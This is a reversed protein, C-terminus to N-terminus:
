DDIETPEKKEKKSSFKDFVGCVYLVFEMGIDSIAFGDESTTLLGDQEFPKLAKIEDKFYDNFDIKLKEGLETYNIKGYNRILQIVERRILEDNNLVYGRYVPLKGLEIDETYGEKYYKDQSYCNKVTSTANAGIAITDAYDGTTVGLSNWKMKGSKLSEAVEDTAKAFHDYGTRYYGNKMLIEAGTLFIMMKEFGEPLKTPRNNKGDIMMLQHKAHEPFFGLYSFCVRDPSFKLLTDFTKKITETTQNPLGCLMDFNIGNPFYSRIEPTMLPALLTEEQVRNIAKQVNLDFDQIGFSIRNIGKKSYYILKDKNVFRPDIEISFERINPIDAIKSIKEILENFDTENLITPSGGGLHIEKINPKISNKKLFDILLDLEKYLHKMYEKIEQYDNTICTHCCCYFCQIKCFPIHVYLMLPNNDKELLLLSKKYDEETFNMNWYNKHPYHAYVLARYNYKSCLERIKEIKNDDM